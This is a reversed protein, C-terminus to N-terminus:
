LEVLYERGRSRFFTALPCYLRVLDHSFLSLQEFLTCIANESFQISVVLTLARMFCPSCANPITPPVQDTRRPADTFGMCMDGGYERELQIDERIVSAKVDNDANAPVRVSDAEVSWGPQQAIFASLESAVLLTLSLCVHYFVSVNCIWTNRWASRALQESRERLATSYWVVSLMTSVM